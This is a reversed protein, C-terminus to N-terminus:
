PRTGNAVPRRPALILASVRRCDAYTPALGMGPSRHVGHCHVCRYRDNHAGKSMALPAIRHFLEEHSTAVLLPSQLVCDCRFSSVNTAKLFPTLTLWARSVRRAHLGIEGFMSVLAGALLRHSTISACVERP